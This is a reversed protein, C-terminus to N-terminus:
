IGLTEIKEQRNLIIELREIKEELKDMKTYLNKGGGWLSLRNWEDKLIEIQEKLKETKM